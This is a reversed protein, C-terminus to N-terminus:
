RSDIPKKEGDKCGLGMDDGVTEVLTKSSFSVEDDGLVDVLKILFEMELNVISIGLGFSSSSDGCNNKALSSSATLLASITFTRAPFHTTQTM